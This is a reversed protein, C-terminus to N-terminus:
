VDIISSKVSIAFLKVMSLQCNGLYAEAIVTFSKSPLQGLIFFNLLSKSADPIVNRKKCLVSWDRLWSVSRVKKENRIM